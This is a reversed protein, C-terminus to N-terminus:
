LATFVAIGVFAMGLCAVYFLNRKVAQTFAERKLRANFEHYLDLDVRTHQLKNYNM